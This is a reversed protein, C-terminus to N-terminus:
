ADPKRDAPERAEAWKYGELSVRFIQRAYGKARILGFTELQECAAEWAAESRPDREAGFTQGNTQFTTTTGGLGGPIRLIEGNGKAAEVLLTRAEDSLTPRRPQAIPGPVRVPIPVPIPIPAPTESQFHESIYDHMESGTLVRTSPGFRVCFQEKTPHGRYKFVPKPSPKCEVRCITHGSVRHHRSVVRAAATEGIRPKMVDELHLLFRDTDKFGDHEIGVISHNDAVGLYLVGGHRNQFGQIAEVAEETMQPDKKETELNWRLSSKFERSETEGEDIEALIEVETLRSRGVAGSLDEAVDHAPSLEEDLTEAGDLIRRIVVVPNDRARGSRGAITTKSRSDGAWDEAASRCQDTLEELELRDADIMRYSEDRRDLRFLLGRIFERHTRDIYLPGDSNELAPVDPSWGYEDIFRVIESPTFTPM